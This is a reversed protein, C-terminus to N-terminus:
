CSGVLPWSILHWMVHLRLNRSHFFFAKVKWHATPFQELIMLFLNIETLFLGTTMPASPGQIKGRSLNRSFLSSSRSEMSLHSPISCLVPITVECLNNEKLLLVTNCSNWTRYSHIFYGAVLRFLHQKEKWMPWYWDTNLENATWKSM